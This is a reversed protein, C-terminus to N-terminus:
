QQIAPLALDNGSRDLAVVTTRIFWVEARAAASRRRDCTELRCVVVLMMMLLLLLGGVVEGDAAATKGGDGVTEPPGEPGPRLWPSACHSDGSLAAVAVTPQERTM